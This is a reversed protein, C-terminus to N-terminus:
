LFPILASGVCYELIEGKDLALIRIINTNETRVMDVLHVDSVHEIKMIESESVQRYRGDSQRSGHTRLAEANNFNITFVAHYAKLLFRGM